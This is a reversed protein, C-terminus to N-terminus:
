ERFTSIAEVAVNYKNKVYEKIEKSREDITETKGEDININVKDISKVSSDNYSISINKINLTKKTKDYEIVTGVKFNLGSYKEELDKVITAELNAKFTEITVEISTDQSDVVAVSKKSQFYTSAASTISETSIGKGLFTFIPSIIVVILILGLVFKAYKKLSNSPLIMEVITIFIVATAISITWKKLFDM